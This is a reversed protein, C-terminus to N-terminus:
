AKRNDADTDAGRHPWIRDLIGNLFSAADKSSYLKAVEVAENISVRRPIDECFLIECAAIRLINRDVVNMRPITWHDAYGELVRDIHQRKEQVLRFLRNAFSYTQEDCPLYRRLESLADREWQDLLDTEYLAQLAFERARRRIGM